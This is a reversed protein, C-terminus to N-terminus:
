KLAEWDEEAVPETPAEFKLVTNRLGRFWVEPEEVYPVIKLVPRGHDTIVLEEGTQEIRRFYELSHPKFQSKSVM